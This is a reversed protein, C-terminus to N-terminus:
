WVVLLLSLVMISTENQIVAENLECVGKVDATVSRFYHHEEEPIREQKERVFIQVNL